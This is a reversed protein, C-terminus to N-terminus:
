WRIPFKKWARDAVSSIIEACRARTSATKRAIWVFGLCIGYGTLLLIWIFQLGVVGGIFTDHVHTWFGPLSCHREYRGCENPALLSAVVGFVVFATPIIWQRGLWKFLSKFHFKGDVVFPSPETKWHLLDESIGSLAFGLYYGLIIAFATQATWINM